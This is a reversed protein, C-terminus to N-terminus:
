KKALIQAKKQDYEAQNIAGKDLAMKLDMLEQGTTPRPNNETGGIAICGSVVSLASVVMCVALARKM